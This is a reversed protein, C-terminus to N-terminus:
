QSGGDNPRAGYIRTAFYEFLDWGPGHQTDHQHIAQHLVHAAQEDSLDPRVDLVDSVSWVVAAQDFATLLTQIFPPQHLDGDPDNVAIVRVAMPHSLLASGFGSQMRECVWPRLSEPRMSSDIALTITTTLEVYRTM